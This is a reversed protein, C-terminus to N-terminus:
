EETKKLINEKLAYAQVILSLKEDNYIIFDARQMKEEDSLQSAMIAEIQTSSRQPDRVALREKRLSPPSIVLATFDLQRAIDAEYLLAAV